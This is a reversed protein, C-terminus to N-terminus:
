SKVEASAIIPARLTAAGHAVLREVLETEDSLSCLGGSIKQLYLHNTWTHIIAGILFHMRWFFEPVPVDPLTRTLALRFRVIIEEFQSLFFLQLDKKPDSHVRGALRVFRPNDRCLRMMPAIFANLIDELPVAAGQALSEVEDLLRIRERNLPGLRRGIVEQVLKLKSGFHYNVAALNAHAKATINRLSTAEFGREAFLREAADLLRQRTEKKPM